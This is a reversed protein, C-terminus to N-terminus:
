AQATEHEEESVLSLIEDAQDEATKTNLITYPYGFSNLAMLMGGQIQEDMPDNSKTEPMVFLWDYLKTSAMTDQYFSGLQNMFNSIRTWNQSQEEPDNSSQMANYTAYVSTDILTGCVIVNSHCGCFMAKRELRHRGLLVYLNSIYNGAVGIAVDNEKGIRDVYDDIVKNKGDLRKYLVQALDSKGSGAAGILGINM